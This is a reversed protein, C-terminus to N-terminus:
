LAGRPTVPQVGLHARSHPWVLVSSRLSRTGGLYSPALHRSLGHEELVAAEATANCERMRGGGGSGGGTLRSGGLTPSLRVGAGWGAGM